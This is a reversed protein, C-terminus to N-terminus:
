NEEPGLNNKSNHKKYQNIKKIYESVLQELITRNKELFEKMQPISIDASSTFGEYHFHSIFAQELGQYDFVFSNKEVHDVYKNLDSLEIEKQLSKNILQTLDELNKLRNVSPIYNSYITDAFVISPKQYFAAEMGTTGAITVVLSCNKILEENSTSPHILEVNPLELIDKYFKTNRWGATRMLPHDKVYLKYKVPLSKAISTIVELQNTFYPAPILITREPEYHLPFYVFPISSDIKRIANKNLFLEHYKSKLL